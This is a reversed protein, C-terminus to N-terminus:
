CIAASLLRLIDGGDLSQRSKGCLQAILACISIVLCGPAIVFLYLVDTDSSMLLPLFDLVVALVAYM